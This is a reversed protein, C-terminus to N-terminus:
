VTCNNKKDTNEKVVKNWIIGPKDMSKRYADHNVAPVYLGLVNFKLSGRISM